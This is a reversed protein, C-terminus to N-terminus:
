PKLLNGIEGERGKWNVKILPVEMFDLVGKQVTEHRFGRKALTREVLFALDVVAVQYELTESKFGPVVFSMRLSPATRAAIYFPTPLIGPSPFCHNTSTPQLAASDDASPFGNDSAFDSEYRAILDQQQLSEATLQSNSASLEQILATNAFAQAELDALRQSTTM